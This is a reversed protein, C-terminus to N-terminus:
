RSARSRWRRRRPDHHERRDAPDDRAIWAIIGVIILLIGGVIGLIGVAKVLGLSRAPPKSPTRHRDPATEDTM